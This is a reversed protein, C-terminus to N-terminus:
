TCSMFIVTNSLPRKHTSRKKALTSTKARCLWRKVNTIMNPISRCWCPAWCLHGTCCGMGIKSTSVAYVRLVIEFTGVNLFFFSFGCLHCLMQLFQFFFVHVSRILHYSSLKKKKETVPINIDKFQAHVPWMKIWILISFFYNSKKTRNWRGINQKM